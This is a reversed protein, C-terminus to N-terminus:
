LRRPLNTEACFPAPIYAPPLLNLFQSIVEESDSVAFQYFNTSNWILYVFKFLRKLASVCTDFDVQGARFGEPSVLAIARKQQIEEETFYLTKFQTDKLQERREYEEEDDLLLKEKIVILGNEKLLGKLYFYQTDRYPHFFQYTVISYIIDFGGIFLELEPQSAIYDPTIDFHPGRHFQSFSHNLLRHFDEDNVLNINCTLTRVIGNTYEAITRAITGDLGTPEYYKIVDDQQNQSLWQAFRCMTLGIRSFEEALFPVSAHYHPYFNGMNKFYLESYRSMESDNQALFAQAVEVPKRPVERKLRGIDELYDKLTTLRASKMSLARHEEYTMINM